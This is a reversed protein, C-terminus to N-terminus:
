QCAKTVDGNDKPSENTVGKLSGLFVYLATYIKIRAHHGKPLTEIVQDLEERMTWVDVRRTQLIDEGNASM